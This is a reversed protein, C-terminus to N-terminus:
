VPVAGDPQLHKVNKATTARHQDIFGHGLPRVRDAPVSVIGLARATGEPIYTM